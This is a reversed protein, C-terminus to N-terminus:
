PPPEKKSSLEARLAEIKSRKEQLMKKLEQNKRVSDKLDRKIAEPRRDAAEAAEKAQAM